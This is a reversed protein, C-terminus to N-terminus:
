KSSCPSIGALFIPLRQTAQAGFQTASKRVEFGGFISISIDGGFPQASLSRRGDFPHFWM